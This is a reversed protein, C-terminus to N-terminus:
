QHFKRSKLILKLYDALTKHIKMKSKGKRNQSLLTTPVEIISAGVKVAKILIEIKSLFGKESIITENNIKINSILSIKYVRYFSSLTFVNLNLTLRMILNAFFSLIKRLFTTKNLEGGQAYVSGLILDYGLDAISLMKPLISLDSTNDGEITVIIDNINESNNLIWEFGRNFSDGPGINTEKEILNYNSNKFHNHITEITNDTSCDDVFVFIKEKSPLISVLNKNLEEINLHENYVPILFYIMNKRNKKAV